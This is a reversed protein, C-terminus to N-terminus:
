PGGMCLCVCACVCVCLDRASMFEFGPIMGYVTVCMGTRGCVNRVECVDRDEWESVCVYSSGGVCQCVCELLTVCQCM